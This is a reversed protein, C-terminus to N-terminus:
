LVASDEAKFGIEAKCGDVAKLRKCYGETVNPSACQASSIRSWRQATTVAQEGRLYSITLVEYYCCFELRRRAPSRCHASWCSHELTLIPSHIPSLTGGLVTYTMEPVAKEPLACLFM